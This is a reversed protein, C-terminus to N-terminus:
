SKNKNEIAKSNSHKLYAQELIITFLIIYNFADLAFVM